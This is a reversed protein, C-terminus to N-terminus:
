WTPGCFVKQGHSNNSDRRNNRKNERDRDNWSWLLVTPMDEMWLGAAYRYGTRVHFCQAITSLAPLRDEQFTLNRLTYDELIAYWRFMNQDHDNNDMNMVLRLWDTKALPEIGRPIVTYTYQSQFEWCKMDKSCFDSDIFQYDWGDVCQSGHELRWWKTQFLGIDLIRPSLLREQFTWARKYLPSAEVVENIFIEDSMRNLYLATGRQACNAELRYKEIEWGREAKKMTSTTTTKTNKHLPIEYRLLGSKGLDRNCLFGDNVASSAGSIALTVTASSYIDGMLAIERDKDEASDQLICLADVWLHRIGLSLAVKAADAITQPLEELGIGTTQFRGISSTDLRLVQNGGWCYSLAAYPVADGIQPALRLYLRYEPGESAKSLSLLRTPVHGRPKPCTPHSNICEELWRRAKPLASSPRIEISPPIVVRNRNRGVDDKKFYLKEETTTTLEFSTATVGWKMTEWFIPSSSRGHSTHSM